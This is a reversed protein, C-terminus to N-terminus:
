SNAHRSQPAANSDSTRFAESIESILHGAHSLLFSSSFYELKAETEFDPVDPAAFQAGLPPQLM